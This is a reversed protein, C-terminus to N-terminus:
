VRVTLPLLKRAPAVTPQFAVASGVVTTLAVCTVACTGPERTVGPMTWIVTEFKPGSVDLASGSVMEDVAAAERALRLGLEAAGPPVSKVRVTAPAPNAAVEVTCHFPAGSTVLNTLAEWNVAATGAARMAALPVAVA